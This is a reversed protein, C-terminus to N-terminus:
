KDNKIEFADFFNEIFQEYEKLADFDNATMKMLTLGKKFILLTRSFNKAKALLVKAEIAEEIIKELNNTLFTDCSTNFDKYAKNDESLAVSLYDQYGKLHLSTFENDDILLYFFCKIKERISSVKKINELFVKDHNEIHINIIEFIIDDKNEFYEYITGKGIGAEKAAQAVTLKKIGVESLLPVCSLAIARRKEDKNVIKPLKVGKSQGDTM